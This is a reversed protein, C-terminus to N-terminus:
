LKKFFYIYAFHKSCHMDCSLIIHTQYQKKKITIIVALTLDPIQKRIEPITNKESLM